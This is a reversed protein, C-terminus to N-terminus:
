SGTTANRTAPTVKLYLHVGAPPTYYSGSTNNFRLYSGDSDTFGIWKATRNAATDAANPHIDLPLGFPTLGSVALSWNNGAPSVSGNELSNYTLGLVSNLGRGPNSLPTSNLVLNGNFLNVAGTFGSGPDFGDYQQFRELGLTDSQVRTVVITRELPQNGKTAFYCSCSTDYLDYRLTFRGRMVAAPLAPPQLTVAVDRVGGAALDSAGISLNGSNSFETGDPNLWRYQLKISATPWTQASNNTLTITAPTFDQTGANPDYRMETPLFTTTGVTGGVAILYNFTQYPPTQTPLTVQQAPYASSAGVIQQAPTSTVTQAGAASSTYAM